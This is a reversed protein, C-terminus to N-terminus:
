LQLRPTQQSSIILVVSTSKRGPKTAGSTPSNRRASNVFWNHRKSKLGKYKGQETQKGSARHQFM